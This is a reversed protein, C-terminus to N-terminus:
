TRGGSTYSDGINLWLTGEDQLVSYVQACVEVLNQIYHHPSQELRVQGLISYNRLSWDPPSTVYSQFVGEPTQAFVKKSDHLILASDTTGEKFLISFPDNTGNEPLICLPRRIKHVVGTFLPLQV